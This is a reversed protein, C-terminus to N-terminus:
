EQLLSLRSLQQHLWYLEDTIHTNLATSTASTDIISWTYTEVELHPMINNAKLCDLLSIIEQQTTQIHKSIHSSNIPVHFHVRSEGKEPLLDTLRDSIDHFSEINNGLKCKVQHLYPSNYYDSLSELAQQKYINDFRLANSVQVKGIVIENSILQHMSKNIDEHMVAQHCIDFCVGLHHKIEPQTTITLDNTFFEQMETTTELVCDPEMELCMRIHISSEEKIKQLKLALLSLQKIATQHKNKNWNAKYGLPVTSITLNNNFLFPYKIVSETLQLCYTLRAKESWDPLYVQEKIDKGHFDSQPFANLTLITLKEQQFLSLLDDLQSAGNLIEEVLQQNLWLGLSMKNLSLSQKIPIAHEKLQQILGAVSTSPHVNSCYVIDSKEWM